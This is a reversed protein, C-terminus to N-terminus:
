VTFISSLNTIDLGTLDAIRSIKSSEDAISKVKFLVFNTEYNRQSAFYLEDNVYLPVLEGGIFYKYNSNPRAYINFSNDGYTYNKFYFPIDDFSAFIVDSSKTITSSSTSVIYEQIGRGNFESESQEITYSIYSSDVFIHIDSNVVIYKVTSLSNTYLTIYAIETYTANSIDIKYVYIKNDHKNEGDFTGYKKFSIICYLENNIVIVDNERYSSYGSPTSPLSIVTYSSESQEKIRISNTSYIYNYYTGNLIINCGGTNCEVWSTGDLKYLYNSGYTLDSMNDGSYISSIYFKEGDIKIVDASDDYPHYIPVPLDGMDLFENTSPDYRHWKWPNAEGGFIYIYTNDSRIIAGYFYKNIDGSLNKQEYISNDSLDERYSFITGIVSVALTISDNSIDRKISHSNSTFTLISNSIYISFPTNEIFHFTGDSNIVYHSARKLETHNTDNYKGTSFLSNTYGFVHYRGNYRCCLGNDIQLTIPDVTTLKGFDDISIGMIIKNNSNDYYYVLIDMDDSTTCREMGITKTTNSVIDISDMLTVQDSDSNIKYCIETFQYTITSTSSDTTSIKNTILIYTIDNKSVLKPHWASGEMGSVDIKRETVSIGDYILEYLNTISYLYTTNSYEYLIVYTHMVGDKMVSWLESYGASICSSVFSSMTIDHTVKNTVEHTDTSISTICYVYIQDSQSYAIYPYYLNTDTTDGNLMLVTSVDNNIAITSSFRNVSHGNLTSQGITIKRATTTYTDSIDDEYKRYIINPTSSSGSTGNSSGITTKTGPVTYLINNYTSSNLIYYIEDQYQTTPEGYIPNLIHTFSTTPLVVPPRVTKLHLDDTLESDDLLQIGNNSSNSSSNIANTVGEILGDMDNSAVTGGKATIASAIKDCGTQFNAKMTDIRDNIDSVAGTITGDGIASIDTNGIVDSLKDSGHYVAESKTIPYLDEGNISLVETRAM